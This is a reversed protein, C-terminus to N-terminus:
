SVATKVFRPDPAEAGYIEDLFFQIAWAAHWLHSAGSSLAPLDRAFVRGLEALGTVGAALAREDGTRQASRDDAGYRYVDCSYPLATHPRRGM